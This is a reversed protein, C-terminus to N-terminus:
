AAATSLSAVDIRAPLTAASGRLGVVKSSVYGKIVAIAPPAAVLVAAWVASWTLDFVAVAAIAAFFSAGFTSATRYFLDVALPLGQPAEPLGNALITAVAAFAATAGAQATSMDMNSGVVFATLFVELATWFIKEGLGALSALLLKVPTILPETM